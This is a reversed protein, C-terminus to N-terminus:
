PMKGALFQEYTVVGGAPGVGTAIFTGRSQQVKEVGARRKRGTFPKYRIKQCGTGGCDLCVVGTGKPEAFGCYVGTGGCSRCEADITQM